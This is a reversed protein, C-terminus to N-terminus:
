EEGILIPQYVELIFDEHPIRFWFSEDIKYKELCPFEVFFKKDIMLYIINRGYDYPRTKYIRGKKTLQNIGVYLGSERHRIKYVKTDLKIQEM